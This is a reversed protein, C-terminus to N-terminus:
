ASLGRTSTASAALESCSSKWQAILKQEAKEIEGPLDTKIQEAVKPPLIFDVVAGIIAMRLAHHQDSDFVYGFSREDLQRKVAQSEMLKWCVNGLTLPDFLKALLEGAAKKADDGATGRLDLFDIGSYEKVDLIIGVSLSPIRWEIGDKDKITRLM